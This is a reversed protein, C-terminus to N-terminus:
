LLKEIYDSEWCFWLEKEIRQGFHRDIKDNVIM